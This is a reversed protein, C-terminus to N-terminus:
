DEPGFLLGLLFGVEFPHCASVAKLQSCPPIDWLVSSMAVTLMQRKSRLLLRMSYCCLDSM